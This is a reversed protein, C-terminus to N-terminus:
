CDLRHVFVGELENLFMVICSAKAPEMMGASVMEEVENRCGTNAAFFGEGPDSHFVSCRYRSSRCNLFEIQPESCRRKPLTSFAIRRPLVLRM